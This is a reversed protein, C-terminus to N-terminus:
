LMIEPQFSNITKRSKDEQHLDFTFPIKLFKNFNATTKGDNHLKQM